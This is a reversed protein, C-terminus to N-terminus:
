NDKNIEKTVDNTENIFSNYRDNLSELSSNYRNSASNQRMASTISGGIPMISTTPEITAMYPYLSSTYQNGLTGYSLRFKLNDLWSRTRRM